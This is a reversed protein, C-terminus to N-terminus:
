RRGDHWNSSNEPRPLCSIATAQQLPKQSREATCPPNAKLAARDGPAGAKATSLLEGQTELTARPREM